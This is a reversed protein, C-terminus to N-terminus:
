DHKVLTMAWGPPMLSFTYSTGTPTTEFARVQDPFNQNPFPYAGTRLVNSHTYNWGSPIAILLTVALLAGAAVRAVRHPARLTAWIISVIFALIPLFYYRTGNGPPALNPWQPPTTAPSLLAVTLVAGAFAVFLKLALKAYRLTYAIFAFGGFTLLWLLIQHDYVFRLHEMGVLSGAFIQGGIFQQFLAFTAALMLDPRVIVKAGTTAVLQKAFAFSLLQIVALSTIIIFNRKATANRRRYWWVAAVPTLLIGFPGSLGSIVLTGIDFTRWWKKVSPAAVVVLFALLALHWQANTINANVEWSNPLALYLFGIFLRLKLSPVIRALRKSAFFLVPLIQIVIAVLNFFLPAYQLPLSLSVRATLVSITQLYGAQPTILSALFGHNYANAYWLYGDEAWFQPHSLVDPRRSVVILFAVLFLLAYGAAPKRLLRTLRSLAATRRSPM